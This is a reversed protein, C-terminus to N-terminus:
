KGIQRVRTILGAILAGMTLCGAQLARIGNGEDGYNPVISHFHHSLQNYDTLYLCM